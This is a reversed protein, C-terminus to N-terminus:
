AAKMNPHRWRAPECGFCDSTLQTPHDAKARLRDNVAVPLDEQDACESTNPTPMVPITLDISIGGLQTIDQQITDPPSNVLIEATSLPLAAGNL